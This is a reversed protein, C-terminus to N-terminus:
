LLVNPNAPNVDVDPTTNGAWWLLWLLVAVADMHSYNVAFRRAKGFPVRLLRADDNQRAWCSRRQMKGAKLQLHRSSSNSAALGGPEGWVNIFIVQGLATEQQNGDQHVDAHPDGHPVKHM